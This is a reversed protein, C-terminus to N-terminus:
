LSSITNAAAVARLVAAAKNQCEQHEAQPVSDAVIGAGAQVHAKGNKLVATRIAIATDMDGAFDLYGVIGGYVGRRIGELEEIIEMARPKPAGSLTGAPFTAALLDYATKDEALDGEVTSVIHMVHSYREISMFDTVDVTGSKCVRGLDNRGLDVLMLHEAREKLDQMLDAALANDAETTEGRARTGAIPHLMARGKTLKVLAEPSSGVIDFAVEADSALSDKPFRFLYMYPSPNQVRLVRYVDLASATVETDFRQSLVIQFADGARVYEKCREVGALYDEAKTRHTFEATVNADWVLASAPAAQLLDQQMQSIRNLADEYADDVRADTADFNIANAILWVSGDWHDLVALDTALLMAIEPIELEDKATNPIREWRRVADYSILGVMGSTLPPLGSLPETHLAAITERLTELPNVNDPIGAPKDGLWKTEGADSTLMARANVGVFSYRSWSRGHEASELLFTGAREGALKRYLGVPTEGDALVRKAVPIVRRSKALERFEEPTPRINGDLKYELNV